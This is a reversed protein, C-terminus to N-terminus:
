RPRVKLLVIQMHILIGLRTAEARNNMPEQQEPSSIDVTLTAKLARILQGM